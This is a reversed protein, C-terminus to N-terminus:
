AAAFKNKADATFEVGHGPVQPLTLHGDRVSFDQTFPNEKFFDMFEVQYGSPFAGILCTSLEHLLHSTVRLNRTEAMQAIKIWETVGGCRGVGPQLFTCAKRDVLDQFGWAFYVNEGTAVPVKSKQAVAQMDWPCDALVPEELWAVNYDVLWESAAIAEEVSYNQNADTYLIFDDGMEKRLLEIREPDRPGGIKIKYGTIGNEAHSQAEKILEDDSLSLWGGSGYAEITERTGGLLTALPLEKLKATVDWVATDVASLAHVGVGGRMRAKNPSWMRNWLTAPASVHQHLALPTLENEIYSVVAKTGRRDLSMTYGYGRVGSATQLEVVVYDSGVYTGLASRIPKDFPVELVSVAISSIIDTTM